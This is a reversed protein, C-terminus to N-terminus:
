YRGYQEVLESVMAVRRLDADPPVQDSVGLVFRRDARCLRLCAMTMERLVSEPYIPSFYAGPLGGWLILDPGARDRWESLPVDGM